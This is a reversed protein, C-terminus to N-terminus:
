FRPTGPDLGLFVRGCAEYRGQAVAVHQTCAHVDRFCRELRNNEYVSTGGGANYMLDVAQACTQAVHACALWMHARRQMSPPTNAFADCWLETFTACLYSRASALLAEARGIDAQITPKDRLVSASGQPTKTGALQIVADIAARAIGLPVAAIAVALGFFLPMAFLTGPQTPEADPFSIAYDQSVFLDAVRYDHSGTGRLGGVHWTDIIEAASTPFLVLRLDPAGTARRRPGNQDHLVCVGLTWSSHTIGSGYSWHGTVRYGGKTAFAKGSPNLTGAVVARGSGFIQRAVDAQLYGALRAYCIAISACWGVSGDIRALEEILQIGEVVHLEPGDLARPLWASFLGAAGMLDVLTSPLQRDREIAGRFSEIKPALDRAAQILSGAHTPHTKEGQAVTRDYLQTSM